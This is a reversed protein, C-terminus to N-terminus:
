AAAAREPETVRDRARGGRAPRATGPPRAEWPSAVGAAADLADLLEAAPADGGDVVVPLRLAFVTGRGARSRAAAATRRRSRPSSRSGSASAARRAPARTTPAPSATSSGSSRRPASRRPGRRRGRDRDRRRRRARAARDRRAARHVQGRERAARRARGAAGGPRRARRGAVALELRWARPAVESWRMFVDELFRSSDITARLSRLRSTPRRSCCCATSSGSSAASSTSRSPSSRARGAGRPPAARSPRARDDGADAARALRRAPLAGPARAAVRASRPSAGRRDRLAAARRRAHWVMALFMAAM